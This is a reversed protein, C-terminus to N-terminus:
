ELQCRKGDTTNLYMPPLEDSSSHSSSSLDSLARTHYSYEEDWEIDSDESESADFNYSCPVQDQEAM